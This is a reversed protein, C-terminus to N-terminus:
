DVHRGNGKTVGAPGSPPPGPEPKRAPPVTATNKGPRYGGGRPPMWGDGATKNTGSDSVASVEQESSDSDHRNLRRERM